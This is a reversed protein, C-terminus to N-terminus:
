TAGRREGREGKAAAEEGEFLVESERREELGHGGNVREAVKRWFNESEQICVPRRRAVDRSRIRM